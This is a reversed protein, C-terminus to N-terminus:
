KTKSMGSAALKRGEDTKLVSAYAESKSVSHDKAYKEVMSDLKKADTKDDEEDTKSSDTGMEKTSKLMAADASKLTQMVSERTAADAIAEVSKLLVARHAVDGVLNPFVEDARKRLDEEQAKKRLEEAENRSKLLQALIPAPIASKAIKEGDVDVFDDESPTAAKVIKDGEIKVGAEDASAVMADLRKTLVSNNERETALDKEIQELKKALEEPGMPEGGKTDERKWLAVRSDRNAPKFVHSVESLSLGEIVYQESHSM